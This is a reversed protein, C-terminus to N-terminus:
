ARALTSLTRRGQSSPDSLLMAMQLKKHCEVSEALALKGAIPALLHGLGIIRPPVLLKCGLTQLALNRSLPQAGRISKLLLIRFSLRGSIEWHARAASRRGQACAKKTVAPLVTKAPGVKQTPEKFTVKPAHLRIAHSSLVQIHQGVFVAIAKSHATRGAITSRGVTRAIAIM